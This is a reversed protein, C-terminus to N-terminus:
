YKLIAPNIMYNDKPAQVM